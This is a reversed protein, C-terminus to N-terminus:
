KNGDAYLNAIGSVKNVIKKRLVEPSLVKVKDGYGLIWYIIEELGHLRFEMVISGDSQKTVIQTKHWQISVVDKAIDASFKLKINYLCNDSEIQWANGIYENIDLTNQEIYKKGLLEFEVIQDM